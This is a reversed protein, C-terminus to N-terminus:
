PPGSVRARRRLLGRGVAVAAVAALLLGAAAAVAATVALASGLLALADEALSLVPAALGGTGLNSALRLNAKAAHVGLAASGGALLGVVTAALPDVGKMSAAVVLAGALPRVFTQVVDLFHDVAPIKDALFEAAVATGFIVLAPTGALWEFGDGLSLPRGLLAEALGFRVAIGLVFPPLFARLGCCAALCVGATVQVALALWGGDNVICM